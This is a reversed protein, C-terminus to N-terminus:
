MKQARTGYLSVDVIMVTSATVGTVAVTQAFSNDPQSAWGGTTLSTSYSQGGGSLGDLKVKDAASMAGAEAQTAGPVTAALTVNETGDFGTYVGTIGGVTATATGQVRIDRVKSLKVAAGVTKDTDATNDVDSLGIDAKDIDVEGTKGLVSLVPALAAIAQGTREPTMYKDEAEGEEAEEQTAIGYPEAHAQQSHTYADNWNRILVDTIDGLDGDNDHTHSKAVADDIDSVASEPKGQLAAWSAIIDMSEWEAIKIWGNECRVYTAGGSDVTEDDTADEVYAFDGVRPNDISDRGEIDAVVYGKSNGNWAEVMGSTINDLVAKNTFVPHIVDNDVHDQVSENNNLKIFKGSTELYFSDYAVGNFVKLVAYNSM